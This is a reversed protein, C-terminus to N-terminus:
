NFSIIIAIILGLMTENDSGEIMIDPRNHNNLYEKIHISNRRSERILIQIWNKAISSTMFLIIPYKSHQM